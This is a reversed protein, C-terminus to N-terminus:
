NDRQTEMSYFGYLENLPEHPYDEHDETRAPDACIQWQWPDSKAWHRLVKVHPLAIRDYLYKTQLNEISTLRWENNRSSHVTLLNQM